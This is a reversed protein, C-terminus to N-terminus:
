RGKLRVRFCPRDQLCDTIDTFQTTPILNCLGMSETVTITALWRVWQWEKTEDRDAQSRLQLDFTSELDTQYM